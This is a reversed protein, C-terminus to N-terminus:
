GPEMIPLTVNTLREPTPDIFEGLIARLGFADRSDMLFLSWTAPDGKQNKWVIDTVGGSQPNTPIQLTLASVLPALCSAATSCAGITLLSISSACSDVFMFSIRM